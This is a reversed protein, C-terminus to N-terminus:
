DLGNAKMKQILKNNRDEKQERKAAALAKHTAIWEAVRPLDRHKSEAHYVLPNTGDLDNTWNCEICKM